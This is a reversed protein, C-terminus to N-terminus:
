LSLKFANLFRIPCCNNESVNWINVFAITLVSSPVMCNDVPELVDDSPAHIRVDMLLLILDDSVHDLLFWDSHVEYNPGSGGVSSFWLAEVHHM